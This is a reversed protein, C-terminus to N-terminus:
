LLSGRVLCSLKAVTIRLLTPDMSVTKSETPDEKSVLTISKTAGVTTSLGWFMM